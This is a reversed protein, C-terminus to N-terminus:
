APPFGSLLGTVEGAGAGSASTAESRACGKPHSGSRPFGGVRGPKKRNFLSGLLLVTEAPASRPPFGDTM